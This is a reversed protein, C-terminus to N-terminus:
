GCGPENHHFHYAIINIWVNLSLSLSLQGRTQWRPSHTNPSCFNANWSHKSLYMNFDVKIVSIFLFLVDHNSDCPFYKLALNLCFYANKSPHNILSFDLWYFTTGVHAKKYNTTKWKIKSSAAAIIKLKTIHKFNVNWKSFVVIHNSHHGLHHTSWM